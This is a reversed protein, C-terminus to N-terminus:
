VNGEEIRSASEASFGETRESQFITRFTLLILRLDLYLSQNMIYILDLKLKDEPSTNYKGYVQAYGTLGGRVMHRYKFAPLQAEYMEVHEVREPRPGVFSMDGKIINILQPLEDIRTKRIFAGVKTIRNDAEVTPKVGHRDADVVMSRLKIINFRRGDKTVRLQRFFVPGRDELKIAIAALLVFPVAIILFLIAFLLDLVRKVIYTTKKSDVFYYRKLPTDLLNKVTCKEFILEEVEPIYYFTRGSDMCNKAITKRHDYPVGAMILQENSEIIKDLEENECSVIQCIDFMHKYKDLLRECFFKANNENYEGGYIVVTKSPIMKKLLIRKTITIGLSALALQCIYCIFGPIIDVWGRSLLCVAVFSLGDTLGICIMQSIIIDLVNSSAISFSRFLDCFWLYVVFWLLSTGMFGIDQHSRFAVGNYYRIWVTVFLMWIIATMILKAINTISKNQRVIIIM